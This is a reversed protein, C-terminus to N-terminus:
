APHRIALRGGALEIVEFEIVKKEDAIKEKKAALEKRKKESSKELEGIKQKINEIESEIGKKESFVPSLSESDGKLEGLKQMTKGYQQRLIVLFDLHKILEIVRHLKREEIGFERNEISMEIDELRKKIGLEDDSMFATFPDNIYENLLHDRELGRSYQYKRIVREISLFETNIHQEISKAEKELEIIESENIRIKEFKKNKLLLDLKDYEEQLKGNFYAIDNEDSALGDQMRRLESELAGINEFRRVLEQKERLRKAGSVMSKMEELKESLAKFNLAIKDMEPKFAYLHVIEKLNMHNLEELNSSLGSVFVSVSSYYHEPVSVDLLGLARICFRSKITNTYVSGAKKGDMESVANRLGAIRAGTEPVLLQMRQRFGEEDKRFERDLFAPIDSFSIEEINKSGFINRISSFM